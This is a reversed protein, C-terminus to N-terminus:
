FVTKGPSSAQGLQGAFRQVHDLLVLSLDKAFTVDESRSAVLRTMEQTTGVVQKVEEHEPSVTVFSASMNKKLRQLIAFTVSQLMRSMKVFPQTAIAASTM